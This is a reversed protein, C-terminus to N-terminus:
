NDNDNDIDIFDDHMHNFKSSFPWALYIMYSVFAIALIHAAMSFFSCLRLLFGRKGKLNLNLREIKAVDAIDDCEMGFHFLAM